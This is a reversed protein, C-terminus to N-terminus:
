TEKRAVIYRSMAPNSLTEVLELGADAIARELGAFTLQQVPPAVGLVRMVPILAAFAFRRLGLAPEALCPTKSIFLGGQPLAGQVRQLVAPLDSVLHLISFALIADPNQMMEFAARDDAVQFELADIGAARAKATAIDIMKPSVDTGCFQAVVPAIRLATSGTGCGIELVKASTGLHGLTRALTDEYAAMDKIPSAAYKAANKDWFKRIDM